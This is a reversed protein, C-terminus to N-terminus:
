NLPTTFPQGNVIKSSTSLPLSQNTVTLQALLIEQEDSQHFDLGPKLHAQGLEAGAQKKTNKNTKDREAKDRGSM